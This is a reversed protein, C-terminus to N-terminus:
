PLVYSIIPNVPNDLTGDGLGRGHSVGVRESNRTAQERKAVPTAITDRRAASPEGWPNVTLEKVDTEQWGGRIRTHM